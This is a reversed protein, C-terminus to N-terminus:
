ALPLSSLFLMIEIQGRDMNKIIKCPLICALYQFFVSKKSCKNLLSFDDAEAIDRAAEAADRSPIVVDRPNFLCPAISKLLPFLPCCLDTAARASTGLGDTRV